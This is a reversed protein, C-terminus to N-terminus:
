PHAGARRREYRQLSLKLLPPTILTTLIVMIVVASFISADVVKLSKGISAFILGVEGRPIMGIGITLRDYGKAVVLGCVQKGVVAAVTLALAIGLIEVSAFAELRVQIGMMVFFIPVLITTVPKLLEELPRTERFNKFHVKELVLGAAFAGVIPALGSLNALYAMLFCFLLASILMVGSTRFRSMFSFYRPVATMGVVIAGALFGFAIAAIKVLGLLSVSSGTEAAVVIGGAVALIILGFVDDIV